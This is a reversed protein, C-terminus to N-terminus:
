PERQAGDGGPLADAEQERGAGVLFAAFEERAIKTSPHNEGHHRRRLELARRFRTESEPLLEPRSEAAARDRLLRALALNASAVQSHEPGRVREEMALASRLVRDAEDWRRQKHMLGGMLRLSHSVQLNEEGFLRRRTDLSEQVLPEARDLEGLEILAGALNGITAALNGDHPRLVRDIRVSETFYDRARAFERRNHHLVGLNNLSNAVEHSLEGFLRRRMNLSEVLLAVGEEWVGRETLFLGLNNMSTAVDAHDGKHLSRRMALAKRYGVEAEANRGTQEFVRSIKNLAMAVDPHGAPYTRAGLDIAAVLQAEAQPWLGLARYTNGLATRVAVQVEPQDGFQGQEIKTAALALAERLPVEARGGARQPDASGLVETLFNTVIEYKASEKRAALENVVAENKAATARVAQVISVVVAALLLMAAATSMAAAIRHRRVLRGVQYRLTPPRALIPHHGLFRRIDDGLSDANSYRRTPDKELAKLIITEVDRPMDPNVLRPARPAEQTIVRIAGPINTRDIEYPFRGLLMEYLVVGLSYVDSRVDILTNDGRAQEPSMYPLTGTVSGPETISAASDGEDDSEIIRALGFDLVKPRAHSGGEERSGGAHECVLINSPKLDRHIVGRRHAYAVADCVESFLDLRRHLPWDRTAVFKTLPEGDVFEMSLYHEGLHTSGAAHLAAIGPHQLRGLAEAERRFVRADRPGAGSKLVKLAVRRVPNSQEAEYVVGGGGRGIERIIRHSEIYEGEAGPSRLFGTERLLGSIPRLANLNASIESLTSACAACVRVHTTIREGSVPDITGDLFQEIEQLEPCSM